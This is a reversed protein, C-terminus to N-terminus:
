LDGAGPLAEPQAGLLVGLDDLGDEAPRGAGVEDLGPLLVCRGGTVNEDGGADDGL